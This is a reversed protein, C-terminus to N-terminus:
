HYYIFKPPLNLLAAGSSCQFVPAATEVQLQLLELVTPMIVKCRHLWGSRAAAASEV